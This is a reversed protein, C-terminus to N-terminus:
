ALWNLALDFADFNRPPQGLPQVLPRNAWLPVVQESLGGHSRLPADLASLDHDQERGGLVWGADALVVWEGLRDAPLDFRACATERDLVEAVGAQGALGSLGTMVAALRGADGYVVAYGGLAGHHAVYPDTIPLIVRAAGEGLQGDLYDQLYCVQPKGAGDHKNGMGHDATVVVVAGLAELQSLHQDFMAYLANAEPAGPAFKHQIYDTTSLYLLDLQHSQLLMVGAAMVFASLAASYVPPVAMGLREVVKDIGHEALTAEAAKESSFALCGPQGILGQGLMQRLKDKATVAGVRAGARAFAALLTECRLYRPDNMMVAEGRQPDLFFNGCIGHVSPPAGTVISLNNPNTFTPVVALASLATGEALARAFWGGTAAPTGALYAHLYETQCGDICVVVVPQRPWHYHRGNVTVMAAASPTAPTTARPPLSM